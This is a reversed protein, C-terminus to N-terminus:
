LNGINGNMVIKQITLLTFIIKKKLSIWIYSVDGTWSVISSNLPTHARERDLGHIM